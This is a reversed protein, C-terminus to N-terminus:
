LYSLVHQKNARVWLSGEGKFAWVPALM